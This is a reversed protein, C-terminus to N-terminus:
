SYAYKKHIYKSIPGYLLCIQNNLM